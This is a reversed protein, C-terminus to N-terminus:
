RVENHPQGKPHDELADGLGMMLAGPASPAVQSWPGNEFAERATAVARAVDEAGAQAVTAIERGTAPDLTAFTRGDAAPVSEAGILLGHEKAIFDRAADGLADPLTTQAVTSM